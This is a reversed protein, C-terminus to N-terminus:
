CDGVSLGPRAPRGPRRASSAPKRGNRTVCSSSCAGAAKATTSASKTRSRSRACSTAPTSSPSRRGSTSASSPRTPRASARAGACSSSRARRRRATASAAAGPHLPPHRARRGRPPDRSQAHLLREPAPEQRPAPARRAPRRRRRLLPLAQPDPRGHPRDLQPDHPHAGRPPDPPAGPRAPAPRAHIPRRHHAHRNGQRYRIPVPLKVGTLALGAASGAFRFIAHRRPSIGHM